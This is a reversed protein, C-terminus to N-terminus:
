HDLPAPGPQAQATAAAFGGSLLTAAITPTLARTALMIIGKVAKRPSIAVPSKRYEQTRAAV